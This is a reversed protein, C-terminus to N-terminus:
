CRHIFYDWWKCRTCGNNRCYYCGGNCQTGDCCERCYCGKSNWLCKWPLTGVFGCDLCHLGSRCRKLFGGCAEGEKQRWGHTSVVLNMIVFIALLVILRPRNDISNILPDEIENIISQSGM